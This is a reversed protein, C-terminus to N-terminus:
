EVVVKSGIEVRTVKDVKVKAVEREEGGSMIETTHGQVEGVVLYAVQERLNPVDDTTNLKMGTFKTVSRPLLAQQGAAGDDTAADAAADALDSAKAVSETRGEPEPYEWPEDDPVSQLHRTM